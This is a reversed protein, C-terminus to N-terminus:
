EVGRPFFFRNGEICGPKGFHLHVVSSLATRKFGNELIVFQRVLAEGGRASRGLSRVVLPLLVDGRFTKSQAGDGLAKCELPYAVFLAQRALKRHIVCQVLVNTLLQLLLLM